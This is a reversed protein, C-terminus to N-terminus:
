DVSVPPFAILTRGRKPYIVVETGKESFAKRDVFVGDVSFQANPELDIDIGGETTAVRIRKGNYAVINGRVADDNSRVLIKHPRTGNTTAFCPMEALKLLLKQLHWNETSSSPFRVLM